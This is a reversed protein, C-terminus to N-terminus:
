RTLTTNWIQSVHQKIGRKWTIEKCQIEGWLM